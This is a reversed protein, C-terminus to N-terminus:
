LLGALYCAGFVIGGLAYLGLVATYYEHRLKASVRERM